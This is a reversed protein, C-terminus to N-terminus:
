EEPTDLGLEVLRKKLDKIKQRFESKRRPEMVIKTQLRLATKYAECANRRNRERTEPSSTTEALALFTFATDVETMLFESGIKNSEEHLRTFSNM